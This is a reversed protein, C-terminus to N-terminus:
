KVTFQGEGIKLSEAYLEITYNGPKYTPQWRYRMDVPQDNNEFPVTQRFSYGIEHDDFWLVGGIGSESLVAGNSDLIRVYVNREGKTAIPNSLLIFSVALQNIRSAKYTGGRRIKGNAAVAAVEVNIAKPASALAVKQQLDTNQRSYAAVRQKLEEKETLLGINESLITEKEEELARTRSLLASNDKSLKRLYTENQALVNQYDTIKLNYQQVSFNLDSMLRKKDNELQWKIRQLKAVNGGLRRVQAIKTDLVRSISDLRTQTTAFQEVKATLLKQTDLTENRAGIFLYALLVLIGLLAGITMSWPNRETRTEETDMTQTTFNVCLLRM